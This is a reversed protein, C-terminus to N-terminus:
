ARGGAAAAAGAGAAAQCAGCSKRHLPEAANTGLLRELLNALLDAPRHLLPARLPPPLALTPTPTPPPIKRPTSTPTPPLRTLGPLPIRLHPAQNRKREAHTNPSVHSNEKQTKPRKHPPHLIPHHHPPQHTSPPYQLPNLSNTYIYIYAHVAVMVEPTARRRGSWRDSQVIYLQDVAYGPWSRRSRM